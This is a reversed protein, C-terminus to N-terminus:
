KVECVCVKRLKGYRVEINKIGHKRLEEIAIYQGSPMIFDKGEDLAAQVEAKSKYDRGYAPQLPSIGFM